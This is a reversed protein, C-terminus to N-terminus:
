FPMLLGGCFRRSLLLAMLMENLDQAGGTEVKAMKRVGVWGHKHYRTGMRPEARDTQWSQSTVLEAM